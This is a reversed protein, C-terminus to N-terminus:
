AVNLQLLMELTRQGNFVEVPLDAYNNPAAAGAFGAYGFLKELVGVDFRELIRM